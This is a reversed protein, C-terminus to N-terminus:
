YNYSLLFKRGFKQINNTWILGHSPTRASKTTTTFAKAPHTNAVQKGAQCASCLKDKEFKVDKLGRVLENKMLKKLSSMGVHALRRHWLWGLTTKTFLCTKLNVDESTFDVLYLNNYRFGKFIVQDDDKKICGSGEQYIPM